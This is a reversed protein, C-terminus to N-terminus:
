RDTMVKPIPNDLNQMMIPLNAENNVFKYVINGKPEMASSTLAETTNTLSIFILEKRGSSLVRLSM